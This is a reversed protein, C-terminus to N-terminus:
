IIITINKEEAIRKLVAYEIDDADELIIAKLQDREIMKKMIALKCNRKELLLVRDGLRERIKSELDEMEEYSSFHFPIVKGSVDVQEKVVNM